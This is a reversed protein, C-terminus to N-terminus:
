LSVTLKKLDIMLISLDQLNSNFLTIPQLNIIEPHTM